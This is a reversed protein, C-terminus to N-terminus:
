FRTAMSAASVAIRMMAGVTEPTRDVEKPEETWQPNPAIIGTTTLKRNRTANQNTEMAPTPIATRKMVVTKM